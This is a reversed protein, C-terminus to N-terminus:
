HSMHWNAPAFTVYNSLPRKGNILYYTVLSSVLTVELASVFNFHHKLATRAAVPSLIRDSLVLQWQGTDNELKEADVKM